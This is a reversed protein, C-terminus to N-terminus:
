ITWIKWSVGMGGTASMVLPTFTSHEVERVQQKYACKKIAEQKWYCNALSSQRNSPAHPNFVRIDFYTQEHRGGWLGNAAIDQWAGDQSNATSM